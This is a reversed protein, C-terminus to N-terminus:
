ALEEGIKKLIRLRIFRRGLAGGNCVIVGNKTKTYDNKGGLLGKSAQEEFWKLRFDWFKTSYSSFYNKQFKIKKAYYNDM